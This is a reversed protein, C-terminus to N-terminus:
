EVFEYMEPFSLCGEQWCIKGSKKVIEPNIFTFKKDYWWSNEQGEEQRDSAPIYVTLVRQLVGVQNAALGVGNSAVMTEHMDKVFAQLEGDFKTVPAAKTTLVPDPWVRVPLVAM